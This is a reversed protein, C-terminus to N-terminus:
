KASLRLLVSGHANVPQTYQQSFSGADAKKWLDRVTVKGKLGLQSFDVTIDHLTDSINFLGVYLDTSNQVHSYWVMSGNQKYLQRPNQGHQNVALVEGNTFLRTEIARNEPLNGGLM